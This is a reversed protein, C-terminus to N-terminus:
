HKLPKETANKESTETFHACPFWQKCCHKRLQPCCNLFTKLLKLCQVFFYLKGQKGPLFEETFTVVDATETETEHPNPWM